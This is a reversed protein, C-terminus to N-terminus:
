FAESGCFMYLEWAVQGVYVWNLDKNKGGLNYNVKPLLIVSNM